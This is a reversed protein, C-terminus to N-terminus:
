SVTKYAVVTGSTLTLSAIHGVLLQGAALTVNSVNIQEGTMTAVITAECAQVACFPGDHASTDNYYDFGNKGMSQEQNMAMKKWVISDNDAVTVRNDGYIRSPIDM